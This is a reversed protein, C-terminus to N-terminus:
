IGNLNYKTKITKHEKLKGQKIEKQSQSNRAYIENTEVRLQFM